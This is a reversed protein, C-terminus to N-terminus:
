YADDREDAALARRIQPAWLMLALILAVALAALATVLTDKGFSGILIAGFGWLIPLGYEPLRGLSLHVCAAVFIAFAVALITWVPQSFVFSYGPGVIGLSVASAATLWGAFLAVPVRLLWRDRVPTRVLASVASLLMIWILVTAAVPSAGSIPLWIAGIGLAIVLPFRHASWHAAHRRVTAGAVACVLLWTYILGWISFAWGPPQITQEVSPNPFDEVNFGAFSTVFPGVAFLLAVGLVGWHM